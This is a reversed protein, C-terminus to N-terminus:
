GERAAKERMSTMITTTSMDTIMRPSIAINLWVWRAKLAPMVCVSTSSPPRM